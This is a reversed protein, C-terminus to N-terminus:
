HNIKQKEGINKPTISSNINGIKESTNVQEFNNIMANSNKITNNYKAIKAKMQDSKTEDSGILILSSKRKPWASM